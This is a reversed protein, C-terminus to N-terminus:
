GFMDFIECEEFYASKYISTVSKTENKTKVSVKISENLKTSFLCYILEIYDIYDICIITALMDFDLEPCNKLFKLVETINFSADLKNNEIINNPFHEQILEIDTM